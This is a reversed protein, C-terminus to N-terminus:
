IVTHLERMGDQQNEQDRKKRATVNPMAHIPPGIHREHRLRGPHTRYDPISRAHILHPITLL